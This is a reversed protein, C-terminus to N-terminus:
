GGSQRAACDPPSTTMHHQGDVHRQVRVPITPSRSWRARRRPSTPRCRQLPSPGAGTARSARSWSTAGAAVRAALTSPWSGGSGHHPAQLTGLSDLWRGYYASVEQLVSANGLCADGTHLWGANAGWPSGERPDTCCAPCWPNTPWRSRWRQRMGFPGSYLMLSTWNQDRPLGAARLAALYAGRLQARDKRTAVLALFEAPDALRQSVDASSVGWRRALEAVFDPRGATLPTPVFPALIWLPVSAASLTFTADVSSRTHVGGPIVPSIPPRQDDTVVDDPPSAPLIDDPPPALGEGGPRVLVVTGSLGSLAAEPDAALRLTFNSPNPHGLVQALREWPDLLPAVICGVRFYRGLGPLGKVHDEHFHSM